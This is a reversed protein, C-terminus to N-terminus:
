LVVVKNQMMPEVSAYMKGLWQIEAASTGEPLLAAIRVRIWEPLIAACPEVKQVMKKFQQMM